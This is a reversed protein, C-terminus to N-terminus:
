GGGGPEHPWAARDRCFVFERPRIGVGRYAIRLAQFSVPVPFEISRAPPTLPSTRRDHIVHPPRSTSMLPTSVPKEDEHSGYHANRTTGSM